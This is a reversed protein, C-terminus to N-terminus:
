WWPTDVISMELTSVKDTGHYEKCEKVAREALERTAYIAHLEGRVFVPFVTGMM